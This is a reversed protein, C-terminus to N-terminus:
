LVAIDVSKWHIQFDMPNLVKAHEPVLQVKSLVGKTLTFSEGTSPLIITGAIYIVNKITKMYQAITLFVKKSPSSALLSVTQITPMPTYGATMEGDVGMQIEAIDIADFLFAKDSAFGEIKTPYPYLGPVIIHFVSNASTITSDTM